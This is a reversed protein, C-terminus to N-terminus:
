LYLPHIVSVLVEIGLNNVIVNMRRNLESFFRPVFMKWLAEETRVPDVAMARSLQELDVNDGERQELRGCIM